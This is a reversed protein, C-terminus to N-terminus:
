SEATEGSGNPQGPAPRRLTLGVGARNLASALGRSLVVVVLEGVVRAVLTGALIAATLHEPSFVTLSVAWLVAAVTVAAIAFRREARPGAAGSAGVVADIIIGSILLPIMAIVGLGSTAAVFVAAIGSTLTAAGRVGTLRRGLFPMLSHFAAVLAYLPPSLPALASLMPLIALHIVTHAGALAACVLLVRTPMARRRDPSRM